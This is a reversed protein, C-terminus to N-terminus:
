KLVAGDIDAFHINADKVQISKACLGVGTEQAQLSVTLSYVTFETNCPKGTSPLHLHQKEKLVLCSLLSLSPPLEASVKM